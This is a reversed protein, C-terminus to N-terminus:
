VGGVPSESVNLIVSREETMGTGADVRGSITYSGPIQPTFYAILAQEQKAPVIVGESNLVDVVASDLSAKGRFAAYAPNTWDNRFIAKVEVEEGVHVKTRDVELLEFVGLHNKPLQPLTSTTTIISSTSTTTEIVVDDKDCIKNDDRDLCCDNGVWIYPKNCVPGSTCGILSIIPLIVLFPKLDVEVM